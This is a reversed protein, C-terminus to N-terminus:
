PELEMDVRHMGPGWGDPTTVTERAGFRAFFPASRHSAAIYLPRGARRRLASLARQMMASGIGLGQVERSVMIWRLALGGGQPELGFAGALRDGALCVEYHEGGRELFALYEERENTAFYDPCNADFLALCAERDTSRYGRFAPASSV